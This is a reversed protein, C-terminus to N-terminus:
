RNEIFIKKSVRYNESVFTVIYIGNIIAPNLENYGSDYIRKVFLVQGTLNIVSLTGPGTKDTNVFYKILGNYSYVSFLRDDPVIEPIVTAVSSLNIYFRNLYEGTNLCVTYEKKDLLDHETGSEMDSIYIKKGSLNADVDILRFIICGDRNLKIGLPIPCITDERLEPLADISMKSGDTGIAYLNPVSYDTNMLKLADLNSDFGKGAKEDFYIVMPDSSAPDDAFKAALRLLPISSKEGSKAFAHTLDTVRVNNDLSLTGTVPWPPGNTVHVFFGQMSPIINSVTDDSSVGNIYTSYKGGYEDTASAKFYYLANDINTKTWGAAANWNIPSPYPNGVLNFGKTYTNNHNYLTVSLPGSNVAGTVDATIPVGSSGFNAAYGELPNLPYTTTVYDAWGSTTSSENYRYLVPFSASLDLEDALENVTSAQFSSSVYKYGFASPLYRQMTVNGSILGTGSGDILATQDPTSLLTINGGTNLPGNCLLIGRLSLVQDNLTLINTRSITLNNIVPPTTFCGAPITFDAGATNGSTGFALNSDQSTTITGSSRVIPLDSGQFTLTVAGVSFPGSSLTLSGNVTVSATLSVGSPNNITLNNVSAPLGNGTIQASTGSYTYSAWQDFTREATQINGTSGTASIGDPSRIIIEALSNVLFSGTGTLNGSACDLIGNNSLDTAAGNNVNLNTNVNLRGGTEIIVQDVTIGTTITATHAQRIIIYGSASTPTSTATTWTTGNFSEWTTTLSWDGSQRTRFSAVPLEGVQFDGFTSIGKAQTSTSTLTGVAPYTWAAANYNGIYFNNYDAGPDIDGSVFNFAASYSIFGSVGSNTLTWWRNVDVSPNLTSSSINPHEGYTTRASINGEVTVTGTFDLTVPVYVTADGIEFTKTATGAAVGKQLTGNVYKGTGAGSVGASSSLSLVYIGTNIRGNVFTLKSSITRNNNLTVGNSNDIILGGSGSFTAPFEIGTTQAASGKYQLAAGTGFAPTTGSATATGELSLTGNVTAGTVTKASSGSLTLNNYPTGLVTQAATMSYNVLSASGNLNITNTGTASLLFPSAKGRLNLTGAALGTAMSFASTNASNQNSTTIQGDVTVTGGELNFVGNRLHSTGGTYSNITIDNRPAGKISIDLLTIDSTFTHTYVSNSSNTPPPNDATGVIVESCKLSGTGTLRCASSSSTLKYLTINTKVTLTAPSSIILTASEGTFTVSSCEYTETVTVSHGNEIFVADNKDPVGAGPAGGSTASWTAASNWNGSSVSYRNAAYVSSILLSLVVALFFKKCTLNPRIM